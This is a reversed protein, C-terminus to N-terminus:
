GWPKEYVIHTSLNEVYALRARSATQAYLCFHALCELVFNDAKGCGRSSSRNKYIKIYILIMTYLAHPFTSLKKFPSNKSNKHYIHVIKNQVV